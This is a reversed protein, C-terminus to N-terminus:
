IVCLVGEKDLKDYGRNIFNSKIFDKSYHKNVIDQFKLLNDINKDRLAELIYQTIYSLNSESILSMLAESFNDNDLITEKMALTLEFEAM